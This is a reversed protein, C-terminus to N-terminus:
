YYVSSRTGSRLCPSSLAARCGSIRRTATPASERCPRALNTASSWSTIVAAQNYFEGIAVFLDDLLAWKANFPMSYSFEDKFGCDFITHDCHNFYGTCNREHLILLLM